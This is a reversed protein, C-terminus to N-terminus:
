ASHSEWGGSLAPAFGDTTLKDPVISSAQPHSISKLLAAQADLGDCLRIIRELEDIVPSSDPYNKLRDIRVQCYSKIALHTM